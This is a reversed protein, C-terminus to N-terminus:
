NFSLDEFYFVSLLSLKVYHQSFKCRPSSSAPNLTHISVSNATLLNLNWCLCQAKIKEISFNPFGYKESLEKAPLYDCLQVM